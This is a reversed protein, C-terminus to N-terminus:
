RCMGNKELMSPSLFIDDKLVDVSFDLKQHDSAVILDILEKAYKEHNLLRSLKKFVVEYTDALSWSDLSNEKHQRVKDPM